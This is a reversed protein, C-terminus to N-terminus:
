SNSNGTPSFLEPRNKPTLFKTKQEGFTLYTVSGILMGARTDMPWPQGTTRSKLGTAALNIGRGVLV